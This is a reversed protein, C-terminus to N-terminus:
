VACPGKRAAIAPDDLNIRGGGAKLWNLFSNAELKWEPQTNPQSLSWEMRALVDGHWKFHHVIYQEARGIPIHGLRAGGEIYHHGNYVPVAYQALMIKQSVTGLVGATLRCGIPFQQWLSPSARVTPMSGDAAVRDLLWGIVAAIGKGDAAAIIENLPAPFEHLEDLDTHLIWTEPTAGAQRCGSRRQWENVSEPIGNWTQTFCTFRWRDACRAIEDRLTPSLDDFVGLLLEDAGLKTYHELWHPLLDLAGNRISCIAFVKGATDPRPKAHPEIQRVVDAVSEATIELRDDGAAERVVPAMELPIEDMWITCIRGSMAAQNRSVIDIFVRTAAARAKHESVAMCSAIPDFWAAKAGPIDPNWDGLGRARLEQRLDRPCRLLIIRDGIYPLRPSPPAAGLDTGSDFRMSARQYEQMVQDFRGEAALLTTLQNLVAAYDPHAALVQQFCSIAEDFQGGDRLANGLNVHAEPWNQRLAVAQRFAAVAEDFQGKDKLAIGLNNHAEAFDPKIAIAQRYAAIAENLNGADKFANALNYRTEVVDPRLGVAQRYAAVAEDLRGANKLAIGLNAHAEAYGPQLHVAQRYSAIAEEMRGASQLAFGLNFHAEAYEPRIRIAHRYSAIVQDPEGIGKLANGLNNHAEAYDPKLAIAQRYAAVAEDLQGLTKLAIGLNNHAEAYDPKLLIAQRCAAVAENPKGGDMLARGLNYHAEADNPRVRLAQRILEAAADWRGVQGALAGLLRLADAHAPQLALIQRYIKEAEALRGAQHHQYALQLAQDITIQPM